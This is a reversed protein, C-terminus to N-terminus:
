ELGSEFFFTGDSDFDLHEEFQQPLRELGAEPLGNITIPKGKNVIPWDDKWEVPALFTERGLQSNQLGGDEAQQPRVALFVAWWKDDTAGRCLDMHGTLQVEPHDNNFVM